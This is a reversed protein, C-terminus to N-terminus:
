PPSPKPARGFANESARRADHTEREINPVRLSQRENRREQLLDVRRDPDDSAPGLHLTLRHLEQRAVRGDVDRHAAFSLDGKSPEQLM